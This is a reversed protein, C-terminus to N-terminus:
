GELQDPTFSEIMVLELRNDLYRVDELQIEALIEELREQFRHEMQKTLESSNESLEEENLENKVDEVVEERFESYSLGDWKCSDDQYLEVLAEKLANENLFVGLIRGSGYEKWENCTSLVMANKIM